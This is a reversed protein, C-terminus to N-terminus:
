KALCKKLFAEGQAAPELPHNYTEIVGDYYLLQFDDDKHIFWRKEDPLDIVMLAEAMFEGIAWALSYKRPNSDRSMALHEIMQAAEKCEQPTRLESAKCETFVCAAGFSLAVIASVWPISGRRCSKSDRGGVKSCQRGKDM